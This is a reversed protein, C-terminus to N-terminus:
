LLHHELSLAHWQNGSRLFSGAVGAGVVDAGVGDGVLVERGDVPLPSLLVGPLPVYM